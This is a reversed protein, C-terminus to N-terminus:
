EGDEDDAERLREALEAKNGSVPLSRERLKDKLSEVTEEDPDISGEDVSEDEPAEPPVEASESAKSGSEDLYADWEAQNFSGTYFATGDHNEWILLNYGEVLKPYAAREDAM